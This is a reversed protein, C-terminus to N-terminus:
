MPVFFTIYKFLLFKTAIRFLINLWSLKPIAFSSSLSCCITIWDVLHSQREINLILHYNHSSLVFFPSVIPKTFSNSTCQNGGAYINFSVILLVIKVIKIFKKYHWAIIKCLWLFKRLDILSMGKGLMSSGINFMTLIFNLFSGNTISSISNHTMNMLACKKSSDGLTMENYQDKLLRM